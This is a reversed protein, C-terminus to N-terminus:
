PQAEGLAPLLVCGLAFAFAVPAIQSRRTNLALAASNEKAANTIERTTEVNCDFMRLLFERKWMKFTSNTEQKNKM